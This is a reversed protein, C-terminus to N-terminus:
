NKILAAFTAVDEERTIRINNSNSEVFNIDFGLNYLLMTFANEMLLEQHNQTSELVKKILSLKHAEPSQLAVTTNRDLYEAYSGATSFQVYDKMSHCIVASGKEYSSNLLMSITETRVLPRTAEQIIVIDDDSYRKKIHKICNILSQVGSNGGPIIGQLKTIGFQKAYNKVITEWGKLCVVYIDNISPHKQYSEMCHIIIPKGYVNIFQSPINQLNRGSKGGALIIAISKSNDESSIMASNVIDIADFNTLLKEVTTDLVEAFKILKKQSVDNEGSEIKSITSRTKYGMANALEQQSMRLEYRRKKINSGIDM